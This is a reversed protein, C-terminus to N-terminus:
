VGPIGNRIKGKDLFLGSDVAKQFDSNGILAYGELSSEKYIIALALLPKTGIAASSLNM